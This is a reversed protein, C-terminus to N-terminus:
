KLAMDHRSYLDEHEQVSILPFYVDELTETLDSKNVSFHEKANVEEILNPNARQAM